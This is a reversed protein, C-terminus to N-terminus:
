TWCSMDWWQRTRIFRLAAEWVRRVIRLLM